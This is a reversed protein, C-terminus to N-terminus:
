ASRVKRIKETLIPLITFLDGVIGFDARAFIPADADKNIAVIHRATRMGALHQIAGSIGCAVYLTPNVTKGTQGVQHAHPIYGADVAARSAGVTGGLADALDRIYRFNDSSGMARGGSVIIEAETLDVVRQAAAVVERITERPPAIEVTVTEVTAVGGTAAPLGFVNPRIGIMQPSGTVVCDVLAKGAYIPRRAVLRGDTVTLAIADSIFGTKLRTAVRPLYDRGHASTSSLVAMPQVQQLWTSLAATAADSNYHGTLGPADIATARTVGYPGVVQLAEALGKGVAVARVTADLATAMEAAKAVLELSYKKLRGADGECVVVIDNGM